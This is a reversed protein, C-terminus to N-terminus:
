LSVPDDTKEYSLKIKSNGIKTYASPYDKFTFAKIIRLSADSDIKELNIYRLGNLSDKNYYRSVYGKETLESLPTEIATGNLISEFIEIFGELLAVQTKVFLDYGTDSNQVKFECRKLINGTDIGEDIWHLTGGGINSGSIITHVTSYLGGFEPLLGGHFNVIGVGFRDIIEKKIIKSFRCSIGLDFSQETKKLEDLSLIPISKARAYELLLEDDWPDNNTPNENGIVVASIECGDHQSIFKAVKTAIPLDGFIVVKKM